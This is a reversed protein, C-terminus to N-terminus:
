EIIGMERCITEFYPRLEAEDVGQYSKVLDFNNLIRSLFNQYVLEAEEETMAPDLYKKMYMRTIYQHFQAYDETTFPNDIYDNYYCVGEAEHILLMRIANGDEEMFADMAEALVTINHNMYDTGDYDVCDLIIWLYNYPLLYFLNGEDGMGRLEYALVTILAEETFTGFLYKPYYDIHIEQGDETRYNASRAVHTLEHTLVIYGETNVSFDTGQRVYIENENRLYCAVADSAMTKRMIEDKTAEIVKLSKINQNFVRFDSGPYLTDWRVAYDYIFEKYTRSINTNEELTQKLDALTVTKPGFIQDYGKVDGTQIVKILYYYQYDLAYRRDYADDAPAFFGAATNELEARKAAMEETLGNDAETESPTGLYEREALYAEFAPRFDAESVAQESSALEFNALVVDLFQQYVAEAEQETMSPDLYKKLYMRVMYDHFRDYEEQGYDVSAYPEYHKIAEGNFYLLMYMANGEEEMYTDMTAALGNISHNMYDTGTYGTCDLIIKFYNYPLMYFRNGEDGMGQMEYAFLTILAEEVYCGYEYEPYFAIRIDVGDEDTYSASRAAHTLEHTLIIYGTTGVSYDTGAKVYITNEKKVYCAPADATLTIDSLQGESAEVIRLTKLNHYLNRLDSQPYLQLWRCAYEYIFEKYTQSIEENAQCIQRIDEATVMEEEFVAGYAKADRVYMLHTLEHYVYDSAYRHDWDDDPAAFSEVIRRELATQERTETGEAASGDEERKERNMEEDVTNHSGVTGYDRKGELGGCASLLCGVILCLLGIKKM